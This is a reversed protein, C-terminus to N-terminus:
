KQFEKLLQRNPIAFGATKSLTMIITGNGGFVVDVNASPGDNIAVGLAQATYWSDQGDTLVLVNSSNRRVTTLSDVSFQFGTITVYVNPTDITEDALAMDVISLTNSGGGSGVFKVAVQTPTKKLIQKTVPM